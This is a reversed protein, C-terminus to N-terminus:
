RVRDGILIETRPNVPDYEVIVTCAKVQSDDKWVRARNGADLVLKKLNDIDKKRRTELYFAIVMAVDTERYPVGAHLFHAAVHKEADKTRKPTYTTSTKTNTRPREKPIPDGWVVFGVASPIYLDIAECM